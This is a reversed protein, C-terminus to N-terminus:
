EVIWRRCMDIDCLWAARVQLALADDDRLLERALVDAPVNPADTRGTFVSGDVWVHVPKWGGQSSERARGVLHDPATGHACAKDSTKDDQGNEPPYATWDGEFLPVGHERWVMSM